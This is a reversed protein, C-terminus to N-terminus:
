SVQLGEREYNQKLHNEPPCIVIKAIWPVKTWDVCCTTLRHYWPLWISHGAKNLNKDVPLAKRTSKNMPHTRCIISLWFRVLTVVLDGICKSLFTSSWHLANDTISFIELSCFVTRASKWHSVINWLPMTKVIFLMARKSKKKM